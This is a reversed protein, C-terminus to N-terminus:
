RLLLSMLIADGEPEAYYRPRLGTQRFGHVRYFADGTHNSARVELLIESVAAAKLEDM